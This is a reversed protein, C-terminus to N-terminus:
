AVVDPWEERPAAAEVYSESPVAFTFQSLEEVHRTQIGELWLLVAYPYDVSLVRFLHGVLGISKGTTSTIMVIQGESLEEPQIPRM